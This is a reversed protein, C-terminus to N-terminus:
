AADAPQFCYSPPLKRQRQQRQLYASARAQNKRPLRQQLRLPVILPPHSLPSTNHANLCPVLTNSSSPLMGSSLYAPLPLSLCMCTPM